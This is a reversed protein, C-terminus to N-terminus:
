SAVVPELLAIAPIFQWVWKDFTKHDCGALSCLIKHGTYIKMFMLTWLLHEMTGGPPVLDMRVLLSWLSLCVLVGCGFYARFDDDEVGTSREKDPDRSWIVRAKRLLDDAQPQEERRRKSKTAM